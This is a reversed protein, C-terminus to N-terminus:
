ITKSWNKKLDKKGLLILHFKPLSPCFVPLFLGQKM